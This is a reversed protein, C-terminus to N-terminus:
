RKTFTVTETRTHVSHEGAPFTAIEQMKEHALECATMVDYGDRRLAEILAEKVTM